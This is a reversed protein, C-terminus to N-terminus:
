YQGGSLTNVNTPVPKVIEGAHYRGLEGFIVEEGERVGSLLQVESATQLGLPVTRQEVVGNGGVVLVSGRDSGTQMVSQVPVTLANAASAVPLQVYAYMGPVLENKPNDVEVETHMTRTDLDIQDSTLAVKGQFVRDLSPVRVDVFEGVRVDPVIRSPVPIVLRLRDNESLHCLALGNASSATGAPLLSGTYAYLKTVVGSFPATIRSYSVLDEDRQLTSRNVALEQQAAALADKAASVSASAEMNKGHAVDVEEQAVLGPRTKQVGSLRSYTLHAVTYASKARSLEEKARAVDQLSRQVAAQDRMCEANLEPVELVALLQGQKVRTGWNIDLQKVYGSVKAHVDIEQYPIFESAIELANSLDHRTVRVVAAAAPEDPSDAAHTVPRSCSVIALSATLFTTITLRQFSPSM